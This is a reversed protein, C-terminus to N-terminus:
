HSSSTSTADRHLIVCAGEPLHVAYRGPGGAVGEIHRVVRPNARDEEVLDRLRSVSKRVELATSEGESPYGWVLPSLEEVTLGFRGANVLALLLRSVVRKRFVPLDGKGRIRLMREPEDLYFSFAEAQARLTAAESETLDHAGQDTIARLRRQGARHRRTERRADRRAREGRMSLRASSPRQEVPKAEAEDLLRRAEESLSPLELHALLALARTAHDRARDLASRELATEALGLLAEAELRPNGRESAALAATEFHEHADDIRGLALKVTGLRVETTAAGLGDGQARFWGLAVFLAQQADDAAGEELAAQGLELYAHAQVHVDGRTEGDRRMAELAERAAGTEGRGLHALALAYRAYSAVRVAGAADALAVTERALALAEDHREVLALLTAKIRMGHPRAAEHGPRASLQLSRDLFAFAESMEGRYGHILGLYHLCKFLNATPPDDDCLALAERYCHLATIYHGTNIHAGGTSTLADTLLQPDSSSECIRRLLALGEGARGTISLANARMIDVRPPVAAGLGELREVDDLLSLYQGRSCRAGATDALLEAAAEPMRAEVAHHFALTAEGADRLRLSLRGHLDRRQADTMEGRVHEALIPHLRVHARSEREVLFRQELSALAAGTLPDGVVASVVDVRIAARATAVAELVARECSDLEGLVTGLLWPRLEATTDRALGKADLSRTVVLSALMRLMFPHGGVESVLQSVTKEDLLPSGGHLALLDGVLQTSARADLADLKLQCVDVAEVSPLPLERRSTMLVHAELYDQVLRVFDALEADPLLHVDDVILLADRDNLRGVLSLMRAKPDVASAAAGTEGADDATEVAAAVDEFSGGELCRVFFVPRGPAAGRVQQAFRLALATKGIGALGKVFILHRRPHFALLRELEDDRGLFTEPPRPLM